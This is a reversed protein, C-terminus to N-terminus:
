SDISTNLNLQDSAVKILMKTQYEGKFERSQPINGLIRLWLGILLSEVGQPKRGEMGVFLMRDAQFKGM